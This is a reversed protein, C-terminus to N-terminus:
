RDRGEVMAGRGRRTTMREHHLPDGINDRRYERAQELTERSSHAIWEAARGALLKHITAPVGAAVVEAPVKTDVTVVSGAAIVTNKGVVAGDLVVANSGILANDEVTCDDLVACHGITVDDGIGTVRAHGAHVVANDEISSRAGIRVSGKDARIVVGFWISAEEGVLVDGILVASPAVFATSAVRPSKGRYEIFM